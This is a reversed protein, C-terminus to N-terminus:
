NRSVTEAPPRCVKPMAADSVDKSDQSNCAILNQVHLSIWSFIDPSDPRRGCYYGALWCAVCLILLGLKRM